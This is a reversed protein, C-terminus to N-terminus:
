TALGGSIVTLLVLLVPVFKANRLVRRLDGRKPEAQAPSDDVETAAIGTETIEIDRADDTV